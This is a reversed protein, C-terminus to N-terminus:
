FLHGTKDAKTKLYRANHQNSPFVHAVREVVNVGAAALQEVKDPNNTLLRVSGIGLQRLIEAAPEYIREDADFGLQENADVTDVGLDQLTYARLKNVLGIDRGEQALYVLVGGGESEIAQIAGRLQDGCDCRLSGLLDGTLCASHLRILVPHSTDPEGIVIAVHEEGGDLPRFAVLKANEADSLPVRASAAQVLRRARLAPFAQIDRTEVLLLGIDRSWTSLREVDLTSARAFLVAPLLRAFKVLQVAMQVLGDEPEPIVSLESLGRGTTEDQDAGPAITPDAIRRVLAADTNMPLILSQVSSPAPSPKIAAVRNRTLAVTPQSGTLRMLMRLSDRTAMEAAQIAIASHQNTDRVIVMAGRRLDAIARDISIQASSPTATVSAGPSPVPDLKSMGTMFMMGDRPDLGRALILANLCDERVDAPSITLMHHRARAQNESIKILGGEVAFVIIAFLNGVGGVDGLAPHPTPRLRARRHGTAEIEGIARMLSLLDIEKWARLGAGRRESEHMTAIPMASVLRKRMEDRREEHRRADVEDTNPVPEARFHTDAVNDLINPGRETPNVFVRRIQTDITTAQKDGAVGGAAM